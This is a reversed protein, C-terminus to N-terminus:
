GTVQSLIRRLAEPNEAECEWLTIVHFGREVLAATARRDRQQNAVFKGLWFERNRKPITARKCGEHHHWFCGHVFIVWRQTRNAIDPNGPLDRNRVRYRKGLRHLEQRVL